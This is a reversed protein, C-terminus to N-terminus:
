ELDEFDEDGLDTTIYRYLMEPHIIGYIDVFKKAFKNINEIGKGSLTEDSENNWKTVAIKSAIKSNNSWQKKNFDNHFLVEQFGDWLDTNIEENLKM